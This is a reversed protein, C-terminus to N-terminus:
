TRAPSGGDCIATIVGHTDTLMDEIRTQCRHAVLPVLSLHSQQGCHQLGCHFLKLDPRHVSHLTDKSISRERGEQRGLQRGM